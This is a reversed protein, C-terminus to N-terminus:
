GVHTAIPLAEGGEARIEEAVVDLGSQKRSALVVAAGAQAYAKAIAAGIGRSAGTIIAVKGSLDFTPKDTM